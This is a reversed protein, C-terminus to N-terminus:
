IYIVNIWLKCDSLCLYYMNHSWSVYSTTVVCSKGTKQLKGIKVCTYRKIHQAYQIKYAQPSPQVCFNLTIFCGAEWSNDNNNPGGECTSVMIDQRSSQFFVPSGRTPSRCSFGSWSRTEWRAGWHKCLSTKNNYSGLCRRGEVSVWDKERHLPLRFCLNLGSWIFFM